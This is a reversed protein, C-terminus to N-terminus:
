RGEVDLRRAVRPSCNRPLPLRALLPTTLRSGIATRLLLMGRRRVDPKEFADLM